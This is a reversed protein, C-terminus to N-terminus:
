GTFRGRIGHEALLRRRDDESRACWAASDRLAGARALEDLEELYAAVLDSVRDRQSAYDAGYTFTVESPTALADWPLALSKDGPPIWLVPTDDDLLANLALCGDPEPAVCPDLRLPELIAVAGFTEAGPAAPLPRMSLWAYASAPPALRPLRAQMSALIGEPGPYRFLTPCPEDPAFPRAIARLWGPPEYDRTTRLRYRSPTEKM